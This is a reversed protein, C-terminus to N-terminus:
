TIISNLAVLILSAVLAYTPVFIINRSLILQSRSVATVSATVMVLLGSYSVMAAVSWGVLTAGALALDSVGAHNGAFVAMLLSASVIPHVSLLGSVIMALPVLILVLASPMEGIGFRAVSESLTSSDRLVLGMMFALAVIAIEPGVNVIRGKTVRLTESLRAGKPTESKGNFIMFLCLPPITLCSAELTSFDGAVRLFIVVAGAAAIMPFFGSLARFSELATRFPNSVRLMVLALFMGVVSLGLGVAFLKWLELEPFFASVVAISVFFPSWNVALATGMLVAVASENRQNDDDIEAFLPSLIAVAGVTMVSGLVGSGITLWVRRALETQKRLARRYISVRPDSEATSRLLQASAVFAAFVVTQAFIAPLAAVRGDMALLTLSVAAVIIGFIRDSKRAGVLSGIVYLGFFAGLVLSLWEVDAVIGFLALPWLVLIFRGV